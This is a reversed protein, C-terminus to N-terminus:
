RASVCLCLSMYLSLFVSLSVLLCASLLVFVIALRLLEGSVYTHCSTLRETLFNKLFTGRVGQPHGLIGWSLWICLIYGM